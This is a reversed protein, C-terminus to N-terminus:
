RMNQEPLYATVLASIEEDPRDHKLAIMWLAYPQLNRGGIVKAFGNELFARALSTYTFGTKHAMYQNGQEIFGRHGYVIDIPCIPGAPSIYLSDILKDQAIAEGISQLDPCTIIVFGTTSLVRHFERIVIPVEHAFVHEINHSSYIAEVSENTVLSMDTLSGIIDPAVTEDIDFRIENWDDSNFGKLGSKNHHWCGVHLFSRM